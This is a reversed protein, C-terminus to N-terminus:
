IGLGWCIDFIVLYLCRSVQRLWSCRESILMALVPLTSTPAAWVVFAVASQHEHGAWKLKLVFEFFQLQQRWVVPPFHYERVSIKRWSNWPLLSSVVAEPKPNHDSSTFGAMLRQHHLERSTGGDSSFSTGMWLVYGFSSSSLLFRFLRIWGRLVVLEDRAFRHVFNSSGIWEIRQWCFTMGCAHLVNM